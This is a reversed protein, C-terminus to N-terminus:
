GSSFFAATEGSVKTTRRGLGCLFSVASCNIPGLSEVAIPQFLYRSELAAHKTTKRGAALEVLSGRRRGAGGCPRIIRSDGDDPRHWTKGYTCVALNNHWPETHTGCSYHAWTRRNIAASYLINARKSLKEM